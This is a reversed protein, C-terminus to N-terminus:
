RDRLDWVVGLRAMPWLILWYALDPEPRHAKGPYAHHDDHRWEGNLYALKYTTAACGKEDAPGAHARANFWLTLITCIWNPLLGVLTAFALSGSVYWLLGWEFWPVLFGWRDFWLTEPYRLRITRRAHRPDYTWGIWAYALSRVVPSHPDEETDCNNHHHRHNAAWWTIAGQGSVACSYAILFEFWRKAKFAAHSYYRHYGITMGLFTHRFVLLTVLAWMWPRASYSMAADFDVWLLALIYFGLTVTSFLRHLFWHSM